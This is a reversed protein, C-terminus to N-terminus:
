ALGWLAAEAARRRELGALEVGAAHDWRLLQRPVEDLGHALLQRLAGGGLNFTFSVLAAFEHDTLDQANWGEEVLQASVAQEAAALDARLYMEAEAATIEMGPVAGRTHGYGITWVGVSDQYATLRLGEFSKILDIGAQNTRRPGDQSLLPPPAAPLPPAEAPPVAPASVPPAAKPAFLGVLFDIFDQWAM